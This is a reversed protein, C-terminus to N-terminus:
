DTRVTDKVSVHSISLLNINRCQETNNLSDPVNQSLCLTDALVNRRWLNHLITIILFLGLHHDFTQQNRSGMFVRYRLYQADTGLVQM